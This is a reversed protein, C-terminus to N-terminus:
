VEADEEGMQRRLEKEDFVYGFSVSPRTEQDVKEELRRYGTPLAHDYKQELCLDDDSAKGAMCTALWRAGTFMQESEDMEFYVWRHVHAKM